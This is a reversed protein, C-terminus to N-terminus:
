TRLFSKLYVHKYSTTHHRLKKAVMVTLKELQVMLVQSTFKETENLERM